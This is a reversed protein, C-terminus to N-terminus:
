RDEEDTKLGDGSKEMGVRGWRGLFLFILCKYFWWMVIMMKSLCVTFYLCM